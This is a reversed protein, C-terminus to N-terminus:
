IEEVRSVIKVGAGVVKGPYPMLATALAVQREVAEVMAKTPAPLVNLDTRKMAHLVTTHDRGIRDGIGCYSFGQERLRVCVRARAWAIFRQRREGLVEAVTVGARAGEEAAIARVLSTPPRGKM